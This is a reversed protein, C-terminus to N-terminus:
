TLRFLRGPMVGLPKELLQRDGPETAPIVVDIWLFLEKRRCPIGERKPGTAGGGGSISSGDQASSWRGFQRRRSRWLLSAPWCPSRSCSGMRRSIPLLGAVISLGPAIAVLALLLMIIGFSRKRLRHMLWGLTFHDAPVDDNLQQLVASTPALGTSDAPPRPM